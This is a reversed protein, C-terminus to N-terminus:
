KSVSEKKTTNKKIKKKITKNVTDNRSLVAKKNFESVELLYAYSGPGVILSTYATVVTAILINLATLRVANVPVLVLLAAFILISAGIFVYPKVVQKQSLLMRETATLKENTQMKTTERNKEYIQILLASMILTLIMVVGLSILNLQVRTLILLALYLIINHLYAFIFTLGAFIDHRIWGMVFLCVAIIGIALGLFLVNKAKVVSTINEIKSINDINIDLSDAIAYRIYKEDTDSIDSKAVKAVIVTKTFETENEGAVFKDEVFSSDVSYGNVKFCKEIKKVYDNTDAGNPVIVEIQSGGGLSTGLNMGFFGLIFLSTVVLVCSLILSILLPYKKVKTKM